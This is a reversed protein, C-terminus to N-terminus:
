SKTELFNKGTKFKHIHNGMFDKLLKSIIKRKVKPEKIWNSKIKSYLTLLIFNQKKGYPYGCM